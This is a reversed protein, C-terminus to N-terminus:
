YIQTWKREEATLSRKGWVANATLQQEHVKKNLAALQAVEVVFDNRTLPNGVGVGQPEELAFVEVRDAGNRVEDVPAPVAAAGAVDDVAIDIVRVVADQAALKARERALFAVLVAELQGHIFDHLFRPLRGRQADGFQVDDAPQM